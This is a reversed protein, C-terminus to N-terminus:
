FNEEIEENRGGVECPCAGVLVRNKKTM